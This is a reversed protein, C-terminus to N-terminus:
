SPPTCPGVRRGDQVETMTMNKGGMTMNIRGRFRDGMLKYAASAKALNSGTCKIDFTLDGKEEHVNGMPCHTLPNNESLVAFGHNANGGRAVLCMTKTTNVNLGEIHPLELSATVEYAGPALRGPEGVADGEGGAASGATAIVLAVFGTVALGSKAALRTRAMFSNGDLRMRMARSGVFVAATVRRVALATGGHDRFPPLASWGRRAGMRSLSESERAVRLRDLLWFVHFRHPTGQRVSQDAATRAM